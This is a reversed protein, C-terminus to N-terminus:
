PHPPKPTTIARLVSDAVGLNKLRVLGIADVDVKTSKRITAMIVDDPLKAELMQVILDITLKSESSDAPPANAPPAQMTSKFWISGDVLSVVSDGSVISRITVGPYASLLTDGIMTFAGAHEKGRAKNRATGDPQLFVTDASNKQTYVGALRQAVDSLDSRRWAAFEVGSKELTEYFCRFKKQLAQAGNGAAKEEVTRGGTLQVRYADIPSSSLQDRLLAIQQDSLVASLTVTRGVKGMM